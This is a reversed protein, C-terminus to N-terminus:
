IFNNLRDKDSMILFVSLFLCLLAPGVGALDHLFHFVTANFMIATILVLAIPIYRNIVLGLGGMIELVGVLKLFGSSIYIQMLTGGDGEPSPIETFELFKNFGIVIMFVGLLIQVIQIIRSKM